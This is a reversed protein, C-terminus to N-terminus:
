FKRIMFPQGYRKMFAYVFVIIAVVFLLPCLLSGEFGFPGGTWAEPGSM